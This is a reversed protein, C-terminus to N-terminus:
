ADQRKLLFVEGPAVALLGTFTRGSLLDKHLGTLYLEQSFAGCNVVTIIEEAEDYRAFAFMGGSLATTRYEGKKYVEHGRRIAAIKKDGAARRIRGAEAGPDIVICEQGGEKSLIYCCTQVIGVTLEEIQM